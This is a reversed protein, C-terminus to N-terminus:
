KLIGWHGESDDSHWSIVDYPFKTRDGDLFVIQGLIVWTASGDKTTKREWKGNLAAAFSEVGKTLHSINIM